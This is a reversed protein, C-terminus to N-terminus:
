SPKTLLFRLSSSGAAAPGEGVSTTGESLPQYEYADGYGVQMLVFRADLRVFLDAGRVSGEHGFPQFRTM